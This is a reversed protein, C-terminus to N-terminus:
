FILEGNVVVGVKQLKERAVSIDEYNGGGNANQSVTATATVSGSLPSRAAANIAASVVAGLHMMLNDMADRM